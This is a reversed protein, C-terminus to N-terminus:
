GGCMTKNANIEELKYIMIIIDKVVNTLDEISNNNEIKFDPKYISDLGCNDVFDLATESIHNKGHVEINHNRYIRIHYGGRDKVAKLEEKHRIDTIIINKFRNKFVKNIWFNSDISRFFEGYAQLIERPTWYEELEVGKKIYRKDPSEKLCGYLQDISLDFDKAVRKKLARSFEMLQFEGKGAKFLEKIFIEGTTDKGARAKGSIGIIM